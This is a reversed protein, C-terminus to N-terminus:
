YACLDLKLNNDFVFSDSSCSIEANNEPEGSNPSGVDTEGRSVGKASGSRRLQTKM